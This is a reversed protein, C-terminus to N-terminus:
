KFSIFKFNDHYISCNLYLNQKVCFLLFKVFITYIITHSIKSTLMIIGLKYKNELGQLNGTNNM